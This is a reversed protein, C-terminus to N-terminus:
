AVEGALLENIEENVLENFDLPVKYDQFILEDVTLVM